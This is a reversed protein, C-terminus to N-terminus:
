CQYSSAMNDVNAPYPNLLNTSDKSLCFPAITDKPFSPSSWMVADILLSLPVVHPQLIGKRMNAISDTLIDLARQVSNLADNIRAIHSEVIIKMSLTDTVSWTKLLLTETYDKIQLLGERMEAENYVVTM